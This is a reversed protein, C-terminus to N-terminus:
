IHKLDHMRIMRAAKQLLKEIERWLELSRPGIAVLMLLQYMADTEM